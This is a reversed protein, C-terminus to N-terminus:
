GPPRGAAVRWRDAVESADAAFPNVQPRAPPPRRRGVRERARRAEALSKVRHCPACVARLNALDDTGGESVPLIHDVETAKGACGPGGIQCQRHDRRMVKRSISESVGRSQMRGDSSWAM